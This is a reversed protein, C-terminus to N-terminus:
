EKRYTWESVSKRLQSRAEITQARAYKESMNFARAIDHYPLHMQDRLLVFAKVDFPLAQLARGVVALVAKEQDTVGDFSVGETSPMAKAIRSKAIVEAAVAAVLSETPKDPSSRRIVEAFASTAIEYATNRDGGILYLALAFVRQEFRSVLLTLEEQRQSDTL